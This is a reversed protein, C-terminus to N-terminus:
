MVKLDGEPATRSVCIDESFFSVNESMNSNAIAQNWLSCMIM